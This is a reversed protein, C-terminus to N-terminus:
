ATTTRPLEAASPAENAAEAAKAGDAAGGPGSRTRRFARAVRVPLLMGAQGKKIVGKRFKQLITKHEDRTYFRQNIFKDKLFQYEPADTDYLPLIRDHDIKKPINRYRTKPDITYAKYADKM